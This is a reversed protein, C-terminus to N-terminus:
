RRSLWHDNREVALARPVRLFSAENPFVQVVATRRRVAMHDHEISPSLASM